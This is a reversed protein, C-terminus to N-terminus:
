GINSNDKMAMDVFKSLEEYAEKENKCHILEEATNYVANALSGFPNGMNNQDIKKGADEMMEFISQAIKEVDSSKISDEAIKYMVVQIPWYGKWGETIKFNEFLKIHKM